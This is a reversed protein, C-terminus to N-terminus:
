KGDKVGCSCQGKRHLGVKYDGIQHGAERLHTIIDNASVLYNGTNSKATLARELIDRDKKDLSELIQAIRCNSVKPVLLKELNELTM